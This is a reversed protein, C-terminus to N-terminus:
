LGWSINPRINKLQMPCRLKEQIQKFFNVFRCEKQCFSVSSSNKFPFNLGGNGCVTKQLYMPVASKVKLVPFIIYGNGGLFCINAVKGALILEFCDEALSFQSKFSTPHEWLLRGFSLKKRGIPASFNSNLSIFRLPIVYVTFLSIFKVHGDSFIRWEAWGLFWFIPAVVDGVPKWYISRLLNRKRCSLVAKIPNSNLFNARKPPFIPSTNFFERSKVKKKVFFM